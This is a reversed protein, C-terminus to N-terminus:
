ESLDCPIVSVRWCMAIALPPILRPKCLCRFPFPSSLPHNINISQIRVMCKANSILKQFYVFKYINTASIASLIQTSSKCHDSYVAFNLSGCLSILSAYIKKFSLAISSFNTICLIKLYCLLVQSIPSM